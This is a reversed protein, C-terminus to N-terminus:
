RAGEHGPRSPLGTRVSEIIEHRRGNPLVAVYLTGTKYGGSGGQVYDGVRIREVPEGAAVVPVIAKDRHTVASVHFVPSPMGGGPSLYGSYEGMPGEWATETM